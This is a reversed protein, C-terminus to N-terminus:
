LADKLGKPPVSILLKVSPSGLCPVSFPLGQLDTCPLQAGPGEVGATAETDLGCGVGGAQPGGSFLKIACGM